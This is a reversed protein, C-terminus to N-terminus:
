VEDSGVTVVDLQRARGVSVLVKDRVRALVQRSQQFLDHSKPV